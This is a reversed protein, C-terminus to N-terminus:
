PNPHPAFVTKGSGCDPCLWNVPLSEFPTGPTIGQQPIGANDDYIYYCGRCMFQKRTGTLHVPHPRAAAGEPTGPASVEDGIAFVGAQRAILYVGLNKHGFAARLSGPVDLDRRGTAPDVNTASCRGNLRDVLFTTGGIRIEHGVWDCEEWARAGDIYINARFRLPDLRVCWREELSRLTALNILSIVNDPKDMFHGGRSRVLIPPTKFSPLLTWFFRELEERDEKNALCGAALKQNGRRATLWLTEVDVDTTVNALGEDLMLMAFLGKKAWKPDDPDIPATPRALAFVRDHEFPMGATTKVRSLPQASLGKVPYRYISTVTPMVSTTGQANRKDSPARPRPLKPLAPQRRFRSDLHTPSRTLRRQVSTTTRPARVLFETVDVTPDDVTDDIAESLRDIGQDIQKPLLAGFGLLMARRDLMSRQITAAGGSQLGYVGIRARRALGEVVEADPIGAPLHWLLHLGGGEGSVSVEGFNRRLAGLLCDRNERYHARVRSVHTSYTTGQMLDALAAQELWSNGQNLLDKAIVMADTLRPPVVMFGLRLGAGLTRAFTGLYITCDPALAAIAPPNSGEYRFEGDSDDELIYCGCRRAWAAISDRRAVSLVRGTPFQHSPTVYLLATPRQPLDDPVLGDEDVRVGAIDSGTAEFAYAAGQACPDEIAALTGRHLFVRSTLSIGEQVGSIIIIRSPDAAVGRTTALHIAISSRLAPLGAAEGQDTLGAASGHSLNQQLLRRWIKLPFLAPHAHGPCFDFSLRGRAASARHPTKMLIDPLPMCWSSQRGDAEAEVPRPESSLASREGAVFMGSAPRSEVLGDSMLAEYARVVTNRAVGLQESLRRSSPLRTGRPIRAHAIAHRVQDVIQDTLSTRSAHDLLVPIQM